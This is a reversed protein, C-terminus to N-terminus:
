PTQRYSPATTSSLPRGGGRGSAGLSALHLSLLVGLPESAVGVRISHEGLVPAARMLALPLPVSIVVLTTGGGWLPVPTGRDNDVLVLVDTHLSSTPAAAM